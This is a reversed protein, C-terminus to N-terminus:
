NWCTAVVGLVIRVIEFMECVTGVCNWFVDRSFPNVDTEVLTLVNRVCIVFDRVTGVCGILVQILCICIMKLCAEFMTWVIDVGEM